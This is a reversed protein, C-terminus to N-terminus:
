MAFCLPLLPPRSGSERFSALSDVHISDTHSAAVEIPHQGSQAHQEGARRKQPPGRLLPEHLSSQAIIRGSSFTSACLPSHSLPYPLLYPCLPKSFSFFSM